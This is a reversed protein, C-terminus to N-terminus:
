GVYMAVKVRLTLAEVPSTFILKGKTLDHLYPRAPKLLTDVVRDFLIWGAIGAVGVSAFIWILGARLEELHELISMTGREELPRRRFIRRMRAGMEPGARRRRIQM